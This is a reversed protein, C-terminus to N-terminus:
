KQRVGGGVEFCYTFNKVDKTIVWQQASIRIWWKGDSLELTIIVLIVLRLKLFLITYDQLTYIEMVLIIEEPRCCVCLVNIMYLEYKSKMKRWIMGQAGRILPHVNHNKFSWQINFYVNRAGAPTSKGQLDKKRCPLM